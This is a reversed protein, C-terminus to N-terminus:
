ITKKSCENINLGFWWPSTHKGLAYDITSWENPSFFSDVSRWSGIGDNLPNLCAYVLGKFRYLKQKDGEKILSKYKSIITDYTVQYKVMNKLRATKGM